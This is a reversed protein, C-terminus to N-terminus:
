LTGGTLQAHRASEAWGYDSVSKELATIYDQIVEWEECWLGVWADRQGAVGAFRQNINEKIDKITPKYASM